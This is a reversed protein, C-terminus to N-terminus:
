SSIDSISSGEDVGNERNLTKANSRVGQFLKIM